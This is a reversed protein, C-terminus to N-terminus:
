VPHVHVVHAWKFKFTFDTNPQHFDFLTLSDCPVLANMDFTCKGVHELPIQMVYVFWLMLKSQIMTPQSELVFGLQHLSSIISTRKLVAMALVLSTLELMSYMLVFGVNM